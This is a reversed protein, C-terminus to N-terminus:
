LGSARGLCGRFVLYDAPTLTSLVDWSQVLQGLIRCVQALMKFAPVSESDRLRDNAAALEHLM